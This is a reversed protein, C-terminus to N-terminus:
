RSISGYRHLQQLSNAAKRNRHRKKDGSVM